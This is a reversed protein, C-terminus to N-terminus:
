FSRIALVFPLNTKFLMKAEGTPFNLGWCYSENVETSSFYWGETICGIAFQNQYLVNLEAKSPMYWDSYGNISLDSCIRAMCTQESCGNVIKQTNAEGTGFGEETGGIATGLCGWVSQVGPAPSAVIIGHPVNPDFGVDGQQLLYGIVGGQYHSGIRLENSSFMVNGLDIEVNTPSDYPITILTDYVAGAKEFRLTSTGAFVTGSFYFFGTSITIHANADDGNSYRRDGGGTLFNSVTYDELSVNTKSDILKGKISYSWGIRQLAVEFKEKQVTTGHQGLYSGINTRLQDVDTGGMAIIDFVQGYTLGIEPMDLLRAKNNVDKINGAPRVLSYLMTGAFGEISPFDATTRQNVGLADAPESLQQRKLGGTATMTECFYAFDEVVNQRSNNSGIGHVDFSSGQRTLVRQRDNGIVLNIFYHATEHAIDGDTPDVPSYKFGITPSYHEAGFYGLRVWWPEYFNADGFHTHLSKADRAVIAQEKLPSNCADIYGDNLISSVKMDVITHRQFEPFNKDYPPFSFFQSGRKKSGTAKLLLPDYLQPLTYNWVSSDPSVADEALGLWSETLTGNFLGDPYGYMMGMVMSGAPCHVETEVPVDGSYEIKFRKSTFPTEPGATIETVTVTTSGSPISFVLGSIPDIIPTGAQLSYSATQGYTWVDPQPPQPESEKSCSNAIAVIVIALLTLFKVYFIKKM